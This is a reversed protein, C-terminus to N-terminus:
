CISRIMFFVQSINSKLNYLFSKLNLIFKRDIKKKLLILVSTSNEGQFIYFLFYAALTLMRRILLDRHIRREYPNAFLFSNFSWCRSGNRHVSLIRGNPSMNVM